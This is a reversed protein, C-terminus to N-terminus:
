LIDNLSALHFETYFYRLTVIEEKKIYIVLEILRATEWFNQPMIIFSYRSDDAVM